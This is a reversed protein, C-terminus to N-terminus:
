NGANARAVLDDTVVSRLAALARDTRDLFDGRAANGAAAVAARAADADDGRMARRVAEREAEPVALEDGRSADLAPQLQEMTVGLRQRLGADRRLRLLVDVREQDAADILAPSSAFRGGGGAYRFVLDDGRVQAMVDGARVANGRAFRGDPPYAPTGKLGGVEWAQDPISSGGGGLSTPWLMWAIVALGMLSLGAVILGAFRDAVDAASFKTAPEGSSAPAAADSPQASIPPTLPKM